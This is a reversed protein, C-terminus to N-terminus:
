AAPPGSRNEEEWVRTVATVDADRFGCKRLITKLPTSRFQAQSKFGAADLAICTMFSLRLLYINNRMARVTRATLM